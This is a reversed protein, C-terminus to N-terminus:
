IKLTKCLTAFDTPKACFLVSAFKGDIAIADTAGINIGAKSIKTLVEAYTGVKDEGELWCADTVTPKMGMKTLTTKCKPVDSVLFHAQAQGPGMEYGWSAVVNVGSEKFASYVKALSGPEAPLNVDVTQIKKAKYSM